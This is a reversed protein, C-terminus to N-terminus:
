CPMQKALARCAEANYWGVMAERGDVVMRIPDNLGIGAAGQEHAPLDLFANLADRLPMKTRTVRLDAQRGRAQFLEVERDWPIGDSM